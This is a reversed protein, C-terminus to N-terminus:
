EEAVARLVNEKLVIVAQRDARIAGLNELARLSRSISEPTTALHSAITARTINSSSLIPDDLQKLLFRKDM